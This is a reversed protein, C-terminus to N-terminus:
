RRCRRCRLSTPEHRTATPQHAASRPSATTPSRPQDSSPSIARCSWSLARCRLPAAPGEWTRSRTRGAPWCVTSHTRVLDARCSTTGAAASGTMPSLGDSGNPSRPCTTPRTASLTSWRVGVVRYVTPSSGVAIPPLGVGTPATALTWRAAAVRAIVAMPSSGFSWLCAISLEIRVFGVRVDFSRETKGTSPCCLFGGGRGTERESPRRGGITVAKLGRDAIQPSGTRGGAATARPM